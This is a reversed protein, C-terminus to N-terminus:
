QDRVGPVAELMLATEVSSLNERKSKVVWTKGRIGLRDHVSPILSGSVLAKMRGAQEFGGAELELDNLPQCVVTITVGNFDCTEGFCAAHSASALTSFALVQSSTM